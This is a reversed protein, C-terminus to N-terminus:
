YVDSLLAVVVPVREQENGDVHDIEPNTGSLRMHLSRNSTIANNKLISGNLSYNIYELFSYYM